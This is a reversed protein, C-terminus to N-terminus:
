LSPLPESRRNRAKTDFYVVRLDTPPIGIFAATIAICKPKDALNARIASGHQAAKATLGASQVASAILKTVEPDTVLRTYLPSLICYMNRHFADASPWPYLGWVKRHTDNWYASSDFGYDRERPIVIQHELDNEMESTVSWKYDNNDRPMVQPIQEVWYRHIHILEHTIGTLNVSDPNRLKVTARDHSIESMESDINVTNPPLVTTDLEFKVKLGSVNEIEALLGAVNSPLNNLVLERLDTAMVVAEQFAGM